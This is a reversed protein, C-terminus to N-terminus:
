YGGRIFRWLFFLATISIIGGFTGLLIAGATGSFVWALLNKSIEFYSTATGKAKFAVAVSDRSGLNGIEPNTNATTNLMENSDGSVELLTNTFEGQSSNIIQWTGDNLATTNNNYVFTLAFALLCFILLGAMVWTITFDKMSEDAM